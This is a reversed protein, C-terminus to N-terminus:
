GFTTRTLIDMEECLWETTARQDEILHEVSVPTLLSHLFAQMLGWALSRHETDECLAAAASQLHPLLEDRNEMFIVILLYRFSTPFEHTKRHCLHFARPGYLPESERMAEMVTNVCVKEFNYPDYIDTM